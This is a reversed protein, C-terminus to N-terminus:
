AIWHWDAGHDAAHPPQSHPQAPGTRFAYPPYALCVDDLQWDGCPDLYGAATAGPVICAPAAELLSVPVLAGVAVGAVSVSIGGLFRRRDANFRADM